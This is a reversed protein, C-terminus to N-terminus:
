GNEVRGINAVDRCLAVNMDAIKVRGDRFMLINQSKLDRHIIGNAHLVEVGRILQIIIKWCDEESMHKKVDQYRLILDFLDGYDSYEM